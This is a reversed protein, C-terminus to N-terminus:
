LVCSRVADRVEDQGRRGETGFPPVTSSRRRQHSWRKLLLEFRDAAIFRLKVGGTELHDLVERAALRGGLACAAAELVPLQNRQRMRDPRRVQHSENAPGLIIWWRLRAFIM